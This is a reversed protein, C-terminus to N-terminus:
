ALMVLLQQVLVHVVLPNVHQAYPLMSIIDVLAFLALLQMQVLQADQLVHEPIIVHIQQYLITLLVLIALQEQVQVHVVLLHAHQVLLLALIIGVQVFLAHYQM